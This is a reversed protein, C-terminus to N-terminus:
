PNETKQGYTVDEESRELAEEVETPCVYDEHEKLEKKFYRRVSRKGFSPLRKREFEKGCLFMVTEGTQGDLEFRIDPNEPVYIRKPREKSSM